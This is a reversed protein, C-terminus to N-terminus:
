EYCDELCKILDDDLHKCDDDGSGSGSGDLDDECKKGIKEICKEVCAQDDTDILAECGTFLDALNEKVKKDDDDDLAAEAGNDFCDLVDQEAETLTKAAAQAPAADGGTDEKVCEGDLEVYKKDCECKDKKCEMDKGCGDDDDCSDGLDGSGGLLRESGKLLLLRSLEGKTNQLSTIQDQEPKHRLHNHATAATVTNIYLFIIKLNM